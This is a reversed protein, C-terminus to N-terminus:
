ELRKLYELFKKLEKFINKLTEAWVIFGDIYLLGTDWQLGRLALEMTRQCTSTAFNLGFAM